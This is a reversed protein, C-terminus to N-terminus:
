TLPTATHLCYAASGWTVVSVCLGEECIICIHVASEFLKWTFVYGERACCHLLTNVCTHTSYKIKRCPIKQLLPIISPWIPYYSPFYIFFNVWGSFPSLHAKLGYDLFFRTVHYLTSHIKLPCYSTTFHLVYNLWYHCICHGVKFLM